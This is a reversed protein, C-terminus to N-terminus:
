SHLMLISERARHGLFTFNEELCFIRLKHIRQLKQQKTALDHGVRKHGWPSYGALSRQGHSKRPLITSHTAMEKELPDELGM